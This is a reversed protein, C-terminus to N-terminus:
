RSENPRTGRCDPYKTCGWFQSGPQPGKKATRLVMSSGCQPCALPERTAEAVKLPPAPKTQIGAVLQALQPGDILELSKGEAFRRAPKTFYGCSVLIGNTAGRSAMVGYLERVKEVPVRWEKWRKCQVLTEEGAKTLILDIGGDPGRQGTEVVSYGQRRFAESILAEFERWSLQRISALGTQRDFLRQRRLRHALSALWAGLVFLGALWALQHVLQGVLKAGEGGFAYTLPPLAFRFLAFVFVSLAPGLWLPASAMLSSLEDLFREAESRRQPM